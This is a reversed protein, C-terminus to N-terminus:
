SLRPRWEETEGYGAEVPIVAVMGDARRELRPLVTFPPRRRAAALAADVSASEGLRRLNLLTPFMISTDGQAARAILAAPAAWELGVTELGDSVAEAEHPARCLFFHTDFRKPADEPTIWHAFPVLAGLPLRAGSDRVIDLFGADGPVPRRAGGDEALLVGVEEFTERCAAIRLARADADMGAAGESYALWEPARDGPDVLGGPFVLASAFHMAAHRRVMLVEIGNAGDRVLLVTAALRPVVADGQRDVDM